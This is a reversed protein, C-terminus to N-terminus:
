VDSQGEIHRYELIMLVVFGTLLLGIGVVGRQRTVAVGGAAFLALALIIGGLNTRDGFVFATVGM